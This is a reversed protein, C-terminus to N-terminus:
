IKRVFRKITYENSSKRSRGKSGGRPNPRKQGQGGRSPRFRSQGMKGKTSSPAFDDQMQDDNLYDNLWAYKDDEIERNSGGPDDNQYHGYPDDINHDNYARKSRRELKYDDFDPDYLYETNFYDDMNIQNEIEIQDIINPSKDTYKSEEENHKYNDRGRHNEDQSIASDTDYKDISTPTPENLHTESSSLQVTNNDHESNSKNNRASIDLAMFGTNTNNNMSLRNKTSNINKNFADSVTQNDDAM